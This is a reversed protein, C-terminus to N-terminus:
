YPGFSDSPKINCTALSSTVHGGKNKGHDGRAAKKM